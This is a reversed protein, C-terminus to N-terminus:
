AILHNQHNIVSKLIIMKKRVLIPSITKRVLIPNIRKRVLIPNIKKRVLILNIKKRVLILNIKKRVLIPNTKKRVLILNIRKRVLIQNITKESTNPKDKKKTDGKKKIDPKACVNVSNILELIDDKWKKLNEALIDYILSDNNTERVMDVVNQVEVMISDLLKGIRNVLELTDNVIDTYKSIYEDIGRCRYKNIIIKEHKERNKDYFAKWM